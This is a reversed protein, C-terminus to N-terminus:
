QPEEDPSPMELELSLVGDSLQPPIRTVMNKSPLNYLFEFEGRRRKRILYNMKELSPSEEIHYTIKLYDPTLDVHIDKELAGPLELELHFINEIQYLDYVPGESDENNQEGTNSHIEKSRKQIEILNKNM